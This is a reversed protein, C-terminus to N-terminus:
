AHSEGNRNLRIKDVVIVCTYIQMAIFLRSWGGFYSFFIDWLFAILVFFIFPVYRRDIFISTAMARVALSACFIWFIAGFVGSEVWTGLLYSHTPILDSKITYAGTMEIGRQRLMAARFYVYTLDRAWSGHGIIPSDQIAKISAISESRGGLIVGGAAQDHLHKEQAERGLTGSDALYSYFALAGLASISILCAAALTVITRGFATSASSSRSAVRAVLHASLSILMTGFLSRANALLSIFPVTWALAAALWALTPSLPLSTLIIALRSMAPGFAFKWPDAMIEITPNALAIVIQAVSLGAAYAMVRYINFRACLALGMFDLVLFAIRSWGRLYDQPQTGVTIDTIMAGIFWVACLLLAALGSRGIDLSSRQTILYYGGLCILGIDTGYIKGFFNVEVIYMLGCLFLAVSPTDMQRTKREKQATINPKRTRHM